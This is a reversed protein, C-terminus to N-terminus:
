EDEGKPLPINFFLYADEMTDFWYWGDIPYTHEDKSESRLEFNNSLVFNPGYAVADSEYKYFGSTMRNGDM